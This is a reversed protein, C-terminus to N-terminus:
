KVTVQAKEFARQMVTKGKSQAKSHMTRYCTKCCSYTATVTQCDEVSVPEGCEDCKTLRLM